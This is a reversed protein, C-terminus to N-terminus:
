AQRRRRAAAFIGLLGASMLAYSSPEPVQSFVGKDTDMRFTYPNPNNGDADPVDGDTSCFVIFCNTYTANTFDVFVKTYIDRRLPDANLGVANSYQATVGGWQSSLDFDRGVDSGCTGENNGCTDTFGNSRDFLVSGFTLGGEFTLSKLNTSSYLRVNWNDSYTDDTGTMYVTALRTQGSYIDAGWTGNAFSGSGYSVGSLNRWLDFGTTLSQNDLVATVKMGGMENGLISEDISSVSSKTGDVATVSQAQVTPVAVLTAVAAGFLMKSLKM